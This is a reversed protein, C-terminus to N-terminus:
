RALAQRIPRASFFRVYYQLAIAQNTDGDTARTSSNVGRGSPSTPQFLMESTDTEVQTQAWPSDQLIKEADKKSWESWVQPRKKEKQAAGFGALACTLALAVTIRKFM